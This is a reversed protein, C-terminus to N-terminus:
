ENDVLVVGVLRCCAALAYLLDLLLRRVSMPVRYADTFVQCRLATPLTTRSM